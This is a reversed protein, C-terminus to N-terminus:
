PTPWLNIFKDYVATKKVLEAAPFLTSAKGCDGPKVLTPVAPDVCYGDRAAWDLYHEAYVAGSLHSHIDGGKPLRQVFARLATPRDRNQELWRAVAAESPRQTPAAANFDRAAASLSLGHLGVVLGAFTALSINRRIM